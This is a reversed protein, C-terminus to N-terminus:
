VKITSEKSDLVTGDEMKASVKLIYSGPRLDDKLNFVVDFRKAYSSIISNISPPTSVSGEINGVSDKLIATVFAKYYTNGTNNFILSIKPWTVNMETINGSKILNKSKSNTLLVPIDIGVTAVVTAQGQPRVYAGIIAYRTGDGLDTPVQVNVTVTQSQNSEIHVTTNSINLFSSASYPSVDQEVSLHAISGDLSQGLGFIGIEVDSTENAATNSLTILHKFSDGPAVDRKLLVGSAQLGASAPYAALILTM